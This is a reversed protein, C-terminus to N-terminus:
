VVLTEIIGAWNEEDDHIRKNIEKLREGSAKAVKSMFQMTDSTYAVGIEASHTIVSGNDTYKLLGNTDVYMRPNGTVYEVPLEDYKKVNEFSFRYRREGRVMVHEFHLKAKCSETEEKFYGFDKLANISLAFDRIFRAADVINRAVGDNFWGHQANSWFWKGFEICHSLHIAPIGGFSGRAFLYDEPLSDRSFVTEDPVEIYMRYGGYIRHVSLDKNGLGCNFYARNGTPLARLVGEIEDVDFDCSARYVVKSDHKDRITEIVTFWEM